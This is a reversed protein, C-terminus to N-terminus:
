PVAINGGGKGEGCPPPFHLIKNLNQTAEIIDKVEIFSMCNHGEKGKPDQCRPCKENRRVVVAKQSWPAYRHIDTPGWLVVVPINFYCALHMVGSDHTLAWSCKKLVYALQRLNIKGALSLSDSKMRRQIDAVIEADKADGVFIVKADMSLHEAVAAFGEPNQWRKGADAAGPAIVVFPQGGLAPAVSSEFFLEDERLTQIAYPKDSVTQFEYVQRLRM